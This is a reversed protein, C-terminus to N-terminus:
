EGKSALVSRDRVCGTKETFLGKGGLVVRIPM